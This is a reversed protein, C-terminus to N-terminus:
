TDSVNIFNRPCKFYRRSINSSSYVTTAAEVRVDKCFPFVILPLGTVEDVV